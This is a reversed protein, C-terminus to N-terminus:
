LLQNKMIDMKVFAFIEQKIFEIIIQQVLYVITRKTLVPIVLKIAFYVSNIMEMNMHGMLVFVNIIQCHEWNLVLLVILSQIKM